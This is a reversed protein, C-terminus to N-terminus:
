PRILAWAMSSLILTQKKVRIPSSMSISMPVDSLVFFVWTAALPSSFGSDLISNPKKPIEANKPKGINKSGGDAWHQTQPPSTQILAPVVEL